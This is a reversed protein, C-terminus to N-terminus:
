PASRVYYSAIAFIRLASVSMISVLYSNMFLDSAGQSAEGRASEQDVVVSLLLRDSSYFNLTVSDFVDIPRMLMLHKGGKEFRVTAGPPLALTPLARMKAIGNELLSEHMEVMGFQPSTVRDITVTADTNNTLVLYGARMSNGPMAQYVVVDTAVLPAKNETTCATLACVMVVCLITRV